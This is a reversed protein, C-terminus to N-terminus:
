SEASNARMFAIRAKRLQVNRCGNEFVVDRFKAKNPTTEKERICLADIAIDDAEICAICRLFVRLRYQTIVQNQRAL